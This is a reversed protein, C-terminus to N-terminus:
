GAPPCLGIPQALKIIIQGTIGHEDLLSLAVTVSHKIFHELLVKQYSCIECVIKGPGERVVLIAETTDHVPVIFKSWCM